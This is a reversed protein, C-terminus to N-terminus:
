QKSLIGRGMFSCTPSSAPRGVDGPGIRQSRNGERPAAEAWIRLLVSGYSRHGAWNMGPGKPSDHRQWRLEGRGRQREAGGGHQLGTPPGQATATSGPPHQDPTFVQVTRPTKVQDLGTKSRKPPRPSGGGTKRRAKWPAPSIGSHM